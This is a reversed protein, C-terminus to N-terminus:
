STLGSVKIQPLREVMDIDKEFEKRQAKFFAAVGIMAANDCYLKQSYPFLPTINFSKCAKRIRKRLEINAAVGGGVFLYSTAPLKYSAFVFRLVRILHEFASNQFAASLNYIREKNLPKESEVLKYMATKLGSYSFILRKEQGLLPVPLSYVKPNGKRAMKELIAGGPYGLGLMRAAKDLAEGLADDQTQAIIKYSGIKEIQILQTTGGSVVLGFSPFDLKSNQIQSKPNKIQKSNLAQSKTSTRALPSLLHGEVHNVTILPLKYKKALDKAKKIGVELAIALGPGVTVAVADVQTALLKYSTDPSKPFAFKLAKEIVFDIREEHERKALSPYVGGFKAHLSAQSWVVNSLVSTNEVVSAATEDCSTDIALIKM